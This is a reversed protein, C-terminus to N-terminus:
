STPSPSNDSTSPSSVTNNNLIQMIQDYQEKTFPFASGGGHQPQQEMSTSHNNNQLPQISRPQMTTMQSGSNPQGCSQTYSSLEPLSNYSGSTSGYEAVANYAGAGGKKKFKYDPKSSYLTTSEYHGGTANPSSGLIGASGTVNRQSEKSILMAFAQNVSPVHKIMLIQSRAQSYSDNLGMLFQYLKQKHLHEIFKKTKPWDCGPHPVLDETEDWLDKLKSYYVSIFSIGQTITAIKKHLNYCRTGNVKDFRETNKEFNKRRGGETLWESSIEVLYLPHTVPVSIGEEFEDESSTQSTETITAPTEQEYNDVAM